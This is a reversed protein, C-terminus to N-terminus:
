LNQSGSSKGLSLAPTVESLSGAPTLFAMQLRAGPVQTEESPRDPPLHAPQSTQAPQQSVAPFVLAQAGRTSSM